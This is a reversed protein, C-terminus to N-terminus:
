RIALTGLATSINGFIQVAQTPHVFTVSSLCVSLCCCIAFFLLWSCCLLYNSQLKLRYFKKSAFYRADSLRKMVVVPQLRPDSYAEAISPNEEYRAVPIHRHCENSDEVQVVRCWTLTILSIVIHVLLWYCLSNRIKRDSNMLGIVSYECSFFLKKICFCDTSGDLLLLSQM